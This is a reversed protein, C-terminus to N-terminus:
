MSCLASLMSCQAIPMSCVVSVQQYLVSVILNPTQFSNMEAPKLERHLASLSRNSSARDFLPETAVNKWVNSLQLHVYAYVHFSTSLVHVDQFGKNWCTLCQPLMQPNLFFQMRNWTLGNGVVLGGGRGDCLEHLYDDMWWVYIFIGLWNREEENHVFM